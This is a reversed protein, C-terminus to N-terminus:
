KKLQFNLLDAINKALTGHLQLLKENHSARELADLTRIVGIIKSFEIKKEAGKPEFRIRYKSLLRKLEKAIEAESM